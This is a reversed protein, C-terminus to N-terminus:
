SLVDMYFVSPALDFCNSMKVTPSASYPEYKKLSFFALTGLPDPSSQNTEMGKHKHHLAVYETKIPLIPFILLETHNYTFFFTVTDSTMVFSFHM